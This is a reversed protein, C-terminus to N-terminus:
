IIIGHNDTCLRLADPISLLDNAAGLLLQVAQSDAREACNESKMLINAAELITRAITYTKFSVLKETSSVKIDEIPICGTKINM